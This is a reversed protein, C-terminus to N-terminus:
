PRNYDYSVMWQVGFKDTFMGFLSGWFAKELPMTVTGGASLSNFLKKAEEESAASIAISLNDGVKLPGFEKPSDSGMLITGQGIPLAVHMIKKGEEADYKSDPVESFLMRTLFETGFASRYFDFAEGCNNSFTLYPNVAAM